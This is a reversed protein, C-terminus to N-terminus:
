LRDPLFPFLSYFPSANRWPASSLQISVPKTTVHNKEHDRTLRRMKILPVIFGKPDDLKRNSGPGFM